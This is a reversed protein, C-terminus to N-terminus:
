TKEFITGSLVNYSRTCDYCNWRGVRENEKKRGVHINGCHPCVLKGGWRSNELHAICSEQDPFRDFIEILNMLRAIVISTLIVEM